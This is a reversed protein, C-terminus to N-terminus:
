RPSAASAACGPNSSEAQRRRSRGWSQLMSSRGPAGFIATIADGLFDNIIGHHREVAKIMVEFYENLQLTVQEPATEEALTTFGRLDAFMISVTRRQAVLLVVGAAILATVAIILNKVRM